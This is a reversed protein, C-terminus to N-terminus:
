GREAVDAGGGVTAAARADVVDAGLAAAARAAVVKERARWKARAEYTPM